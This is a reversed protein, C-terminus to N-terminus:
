ESGTGPASMTNRDHVIIPIGWAIRRGYWRLIMYCMHMVAILGVSWFVILVGHHAVSLRSDLFAPRFAWALGLAGPAAYTLLQTAKSIISIGRGSTRLWNEWHLGGPIRESLSSHIYLAAAYIEVAYTMFRLYLMYSTLPIVLAVPALSYRALVVSLIAGTITLQLTFIQHHQQNYQLIEARLASFEALPGDFARPTSV